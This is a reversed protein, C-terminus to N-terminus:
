DGLPESIIQGNPDMVGSLANPKGSWMRREEEKTALMDIIEDSVTSCSVISFVKGEFSHAATRIKIAEPM